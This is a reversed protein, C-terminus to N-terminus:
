SRARAGPRPKLLADPDDSVYLLTEGRRDFVWEISPGAAAGPAEQSLGGSSRVAAGCVAVHEGAELVGERFRLKRNFGLMGTTQQGHQELLAVLEPTPSDLIGTTHHEDKHVSIEAAATRVLAASGGDRLTFDKGGADRVLTVWRGSRGSSRWEEITLEYYACRRQSLPAVLPEGVYDLRGVVKVVAAAVFNGLRVRPVKRLARKVKADRNFYHHYALAGAAVALGVVQVVVNHRM